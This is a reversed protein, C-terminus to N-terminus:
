GDVVVGIDNSKLVKSAQKRNGYPIPEMGEMTNKMPIKFRCKPCIHIYSTKSNLEKTRNGSPTLEFLQYVSAMMLMNTNCMPCIGYMDRFIINKM